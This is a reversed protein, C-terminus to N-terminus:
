VSVKPLRIRYGRDVDLEPLGYFGANMHARYAAQRRNKTAVFLQLELLVLEFIKFPRGMGILERFRSTRAELPSMAEPPASELARQIDAVFSAFAEDPTQQQLVRTIGDYRYYATENAM